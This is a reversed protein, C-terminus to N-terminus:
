GRQARRAPHHELFEVWRGPRDLLIALHRVFPLGVECLTAGELLDLLSREALIVVGKLPELEVYRPEAAPVGLRVTPDGV